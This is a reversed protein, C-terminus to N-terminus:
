LVGGERRRLENLSALASRESVEDGSREALRLKAVVARRRERAAIEEIRRVCDEAVLQPSGASEDPETVLARSLPGAIEDPLQAVVDGIPRQASWAAVILRAAEELERDRMHELVGTEEVWGAVEAATAMAEILLREEVPAVRVEGPPQQLEQRATPGGRRLVEASVGLREAGQRALVEIQVSDRMRALIGQFDRAARTREPLSAGARLVSDFYFDILPPAADLLEITAAAGHARVFSDPDSGEPLFAARGWVGAEACVAFARLAAARGARDGDFLFVLSVAEGGIARVLRLQAASLATGLTAAAFPVGEQVLMLADMYGEVLVVRDNARIADRAEVLGYLGEGKRFIPTEPSNLYKPQDDGITRGGFAIVNARRDRIPFMIRGRFRDFIRGDRESLVGAQVGLGPAIGQKELWNTLITGGPPAFGISYREIMDARVGRADLYRRAPAARERGLVTCFFHEARANVELLSKNVRGAADDGGREPLTVGARKALQEVADLFEVREIRMIFNFVTGGAGCGFCHYLGREENVTFSPTKEDHFPCLGLHNRGSRKLSVYASVIEVLSIRDRISQLTEDPIRGAM